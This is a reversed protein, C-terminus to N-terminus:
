PARGLTPLAPCPRWLVHNLSMHMHFINGEYLQDGGIPIWYAFQSQLYTDKACNVNWLISPELSVHATGLGATFNGAPLFTKFQFTIQMLCCDLLMSKTGIVSDGFGSANCLGNA